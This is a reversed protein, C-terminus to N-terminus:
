KALFKGTFLSSTIRIGFLFLEFGSGEQVIFKCLMIEEIEKLFKGQVVVYIAENGNIKESKTTTAAQCLKRLYAQLEDRDIKFLELPNGPGGVQTQKKNQM